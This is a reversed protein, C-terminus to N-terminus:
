GQASHPTALHAEDAATGNEEPPAVLDEPTDNAEALAPPATTSGDEVATAADVAEKADQEGTTGAVEVQEVEADRMVSELSRIDIRWGTLNAALRANQGNKGIALSLQREPV